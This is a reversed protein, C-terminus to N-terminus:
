AGDKAAEEKIESMLNIEEQDISAYSGLEYSSGTKANNLGRTILQRVIESYSRGAFEDMKRLQCIAADIEDPFSITLRKMETM